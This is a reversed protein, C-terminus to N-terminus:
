HSCHDFWYGDIKGSFKEAYHGIIIEAYAKKLNPLSDSGYEPIGAVYNKWAAVRAECGSNRKCGHKLKAPGESAVYVLVKMDKCSREIDKFGDIFSMLQDNKPTLRANPSLNDLAPHPSTWFMGDAPNSLNIMIYDPKKTFDAFQDCVEKGDILTDELASPDVVRSFQDGGQFRWGIGYGGSM